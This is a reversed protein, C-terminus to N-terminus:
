LLLDCPPNPGEQAIQIDKIENEPNVPPGEPSALPAANISLKNHDVM